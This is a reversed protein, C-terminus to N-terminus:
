GVRMGVAELLEVVGAAKLGLKLLSPSYIGIRAIEFAESSVNKPRTAFAAEYGSERVSALSAGNYDGGPYAFYRVPRGTLAYLVHKSESIEMTQEAPSLASLYPHTITHSGIEFLNDSCVESLQEQTMGRYEDLIEEPLPYVAELRSVFESPRGYARALGGFYRRAHKREALTTLPFRQAEFAVEGYADEFCLANLYSFWLVPGGCLHGTSVFFTAPVGDARLMPAINSFTTRAGDDFTIAAQRKGERLRPGALYESIPVLSFHRALWRIQRRASQVTLAQGMCRRAYPADDRVIEHYMFIM